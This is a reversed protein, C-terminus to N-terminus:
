YQYNIDMDYNALEWTGQLMKILADIIKVLETIPFPKSSYFLKFHRDETPISQLEALSILQGKNQITTKVVQLIQIMTQEDTSNIIYEDWLFAFWGAMRGNIVDEHYKLLSAKNSFVYQNKNLEENVYYMALQMFIDSTQFGKDKYDILETAM